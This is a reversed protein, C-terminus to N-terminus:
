VDIKALVRQGVELRRAACRIHLRLKEQMDNRFVQLVQRGVAPLVAEATRVETVPVGGRQGKAALHM